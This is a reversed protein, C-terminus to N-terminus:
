KTNFRSMAKEVGDKIALELADAGRKILHKLSGKEHAGFKDLVFQDAKIRHKAIESHNKAYGIGLRFRYFKDDGLSEIISEVGHHGAASGGLRIKMAGLPLDLEDYVVFIDNPKIKYFSSIAKVAIGSKNMYTLPKAIIIKDKGIEFNAIEAKFKASYEWKTNKVSSINKLFAEVVLFGLNHRTKEYKEGPNGLGVILKM